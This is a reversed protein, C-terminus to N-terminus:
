HGGKKEPKRIPKEKEALAKEIWETLAPAPNWGRTRVADYSGVADLGQGGPLLLVLHQKDTRDPISLAVPEAVQQKHHIAIAQVVLSHGDGALIVQLKSSETAAAMRYRGPTLIVDAADPAPLYLARDLSVSDLGEDPSQQGTESGHLPAAPAAEQAAAPKGAGALPLLFLLALLIHRPM